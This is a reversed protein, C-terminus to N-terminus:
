HASANGNGSERKAQAALEAAERKQEVTLRHKHVDAEMERAHAEEDRDLSERHKEVDAILGAHELELEADKAQVATGYQLQAIQLKLVADLRAKDRERADKLAMEQRALEADIEQQRSKQQTEAMAKQGDLQLRQMDLQQQMQDMQIQAQVKQAQAQAVIMNPDPPPPTQAQQQAIQQMNIPKFFEDVNKYGMIETMKGLTNRYNGLDALPNTVGGMGAIAGEQKTAILALAQLRDADTGRGLGVHVIVDMDADWVRPDCEAWKGRLRVMRPQDQHACCLKLLGRMMRKIGGEAFLRATM